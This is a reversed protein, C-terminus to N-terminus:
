SSFPRAAGNRMRLHMCSRGVATPGMCALLSAGSFILDGAAAEDAGTAHAGAEAVEWSVGLQTLLVTCVHLKFRRGCLRISKDRSLMDRFRCCCYSPLLVILHLGAHASLQQKSWPPRSRIQGKPHDALTCSLFQQVFCHGRTLWTSIILPPRVQRAGAVGCSRASVARSPAAAATAVTAPCGAMSPVIRHLSCVRHECGRCATAGAWPAHGSTLRQIM